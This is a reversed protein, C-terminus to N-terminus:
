LRYRRQLMQRLSRAWQLGKPEPDMAFRVVGTRGALVAAGAAGALKVHIAFFPEASELGSADTLSVPVEGGGRWGLAASPLRRQQYPIMAFGSAPVPTGAQGTLRVSVERVRQMSLNSVEDQMVVATLRLESTDLIKGVNAGRAMWTGVADRANPAFWVGAQRARVVLAGHQTRLTALRAEITERRRKVPELDAPSAGAAKQQTAAVEALEAATERIALEIEPNELELLKAGAQVVSGTDALVRRLFGPADTTVQVQRVPEVVGPARFASPVPVAFLALAVAGAAGATLAVARARVRALRPSQSLYTALGWAPMVLWSLVCGAAMVLGLLLYKDAVFLAVAAMVMFRYVGSALGFATLAAAEGATAAPGTAAQQGFVYREVAYQLQELSRGHLNPLDFVDSAIYYGDFRVLPNANFAVTSVSAIWMANYAVAHLAGQGTKAWVVAAVAAVALEAIMGGAGVLARQWRSRLGWASTADVYPLPTFVLFSVGLSHVEGGFRKCLSAHGMEHLLKVIIIAVYMYAWNAPALVGEAQRVALDAHDVVVKLGYGVVAIWLALGLPSVFLRILPMLRALLRDPDFVHMRPFLISMLRSQRERRRRKEYREFVKESDASGEGYLLNAHHLQALLRIADEQGPATDPHRELCEQWVEGVTRGARLRALFEHAEPAVRFFSNNFPDHILYWTEGRFVQKRVAVTPRLAVKLAEVRHWSDSFTRSFLM